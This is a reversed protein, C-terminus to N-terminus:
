QQSHTIFTLADRLDIMPWCRLRSGPTVNVVEVGAAALPEVLSEFNPLMVDKLLRDFTVADQRRHGEIAHLRDGHVRLDYGLLVIRSVGLHFALNIAQYGSNSGHRLGAPDTELGREGTNRLRKVSTIENELTVLRGHFVERVQRGRADWWEMDCFYLLDAWPAWMFADNVCIARFGSDRVAPMDVNALSPGGGLIICTEGLWEPPVSWYSM